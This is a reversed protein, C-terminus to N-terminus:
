NHWCTDKVDSYKNPKVLGLSTLQAMEKPTVKQIYFDEKADFGNSPRSRGYGMSTYGINNKLIHDMIYKFKGEPRLFGPGGDNQALGSYASIFPLLIERKILFVSQELAQGNADQIRGVIGSVNQTEADSYLKDIWGNFCLADQEKFILDSENSYALLCGLMFSMSWGGIKPDVGWGADLMHVHGLNYKFNIWDIDYSTNNPIEKSNPNLAFIQIPKSYKRTNDYWIDLFEKKYSEGTNAWYGTVITYKKEM